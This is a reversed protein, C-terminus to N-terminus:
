CTARGSDRRTLVHGLGLLMREREGSSHVWTGASWLRAWPFGGRGGVGDSEGAATVKAGPGPLSGSAVTVAASSQAGARGWDRGSHSPQFLTVGWCLTPVGRAQLWWGRGEACVSAGPGQHASSQLAPVLRHQPAALCIMPHSPRRGARLWFGSAPARLAPGRAMCRHSCGAVSAAGPGDARCLPCAGIGQHPAVSTCVSCRPAPLPNRRQWLLLVSVCGLIGVHCRPDTCKIPPRLRPQEGPVVGVFGLGEGPSHWALCCLWGRCSCCRDQGM